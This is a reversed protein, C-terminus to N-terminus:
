KAAPVAPAVVAPGDVPKVDRIPAAVPTVVPPANTTRVVPPVVPAPMLKVVPPDGPTLPVVPPQVPGAEAPPTAVPLKVPQAAPLAARCAHCQKLTTSCAPCLTFAGSSTAANCSTCKGVSDIFVGNICKACLAAGATFPILVTALALLATGAWCSLFRRM